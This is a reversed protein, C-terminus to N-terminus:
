AHSADAFPLASFFDRTRPLHGGPPPGARNRSNAQAALTENKFNSKAFVKASRRIKSERVSGDRGFNTKLARRAFYATM